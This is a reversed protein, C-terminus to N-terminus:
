IGSAGATWSCPCPLLWHASSICSRPSVCAHCCTIPAEPAAKPPPTEHTCGDQLEGCADGVCLAWLQQGARHGSVHKLATKLRAMCLVTVWASVGSGLFDCYQLTDYSLICLVAEGPQDCAHYFQPASTPCSCPGLEGRDREAGVAYEVTSFFMTYCYVSAEVLLARHLSVAIPALFMVNSLTLLLAAM